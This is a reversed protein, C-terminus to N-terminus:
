KDESNLHCKTMCALFHDDLGGQQNPRFIDMGFSDFAIDSRLCTHLQTLTDRTNLLPSRTSDM